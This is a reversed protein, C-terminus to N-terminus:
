VEERGEVWAALKALALEHGLENDAVAVGPPLGDHVAVVETGGGVERLTWTM